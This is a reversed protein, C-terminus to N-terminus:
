VAAQSNPPLIAFWAEAQEETTLVPFRLGDPYECKGALMPKKIPSM